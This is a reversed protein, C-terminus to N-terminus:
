FLPIKQGPPCVIFEEEDWPGSILRSLLGLETRLKMYELRHKEAYERCRVEAMPDTDGSDLLVLADYHKLAMEVIKDRREPPIRELGKTAEVFINLETELWHQELFYRGAHAKLFAKHRSRSGLLAGVCDDVRPLVLTSKSSSVGELGRGCLGYGLLITAGEAEVAAIEAMLRTRLNEPVLHLAIDLIRIKTDKDVLPELIHALSRCTILTKSTM